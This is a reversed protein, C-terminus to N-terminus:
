LNIRLVSRSGEARAYSTRLWWGIFTGKSARQDSFQNCGVPGFWIISVPSRVSFVAVKLPYRHFPPPPELPYILLYLRSRTVAGQRITRTLFLFKCSFLLTFKRSLNERSINQRTRSEAYLVCRVSNLKTLIFRFM